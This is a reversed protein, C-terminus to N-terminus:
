LGSVGLLMKAQQLLDDRAPHPKDGVPREDDGQDAQLYEVTASKIAPLANFIPRNYTM